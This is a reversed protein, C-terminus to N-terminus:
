MNRYASSRGILRLSPTRVRALLRSGCCRCRWYCQRRDGSPSLMTMSMGDPPAGFSATRQLGLRRWRHRHGRTAPYGILGCLGERSICGVLVPRSRLGHWQESKRLHNLESSAFTEYIQPDCPHPLIQDVGRGMTVGGASSNSGSVRTRNTCEAPRAKSSKRSTISEVSGTSAM